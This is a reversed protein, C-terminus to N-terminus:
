NEREGGRTEGVEETSLPGTRVEVEEEKETETQGSEPSDLLLTEWRKKELM